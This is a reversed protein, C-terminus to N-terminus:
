ENRGMLRMVERRFDEGREQYNAYLDFSACGPALLVVDGPEALEAAATVASRMSSAEAEPMLGGLAQRIRERTAGLLILARGRRCVADRLL